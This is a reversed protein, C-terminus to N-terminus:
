PGATTTCRRIIPCRKWPRGQPLRLDDHDAGSLARAAAEVRMKAEVAFMRLANSRSKVVSVVRDFLGMKRPSAKTAPTNETSGRAEDERTWKAVRHHAREEPALYEIVAEREARPKARMAVVAERWTAGLRNAIDLPVRIRALADRDCSRVFLFLAEDRAEGRYEVCEGVEYVRLGAPKESKDLPVADKPPHFATAVEEAVIPTMKMVVETTEDWFRCVMFGSEFALDAGGAGIDVGVPEMRPPPPSGVPGWGESPLTMFHPADPVGDRTPSRRLPVLNNDMECALSGCTDDHAVAWNRSRISPYGVHIQQHTATAVVHVLRMHTANEVRYMSSRGDHLDDLAARGACIPRRLPPRLLLLWGNRRVAEGSGPVATQVSRAGSRHAVRLLKAFPLGRMHERKRPRVSRVVHDVLRRSGADHRHARVRLLLTEDDDPVVGPGVREGGPEDVVGGIAVRHGHSCGDHQHAAPARAALDNPCLKAPDGVVCRFLPLLLGVHQEERGRQAHCREGPNAETQLLDGPVSGRAEVALRVISAPGDSAVLLRVLKLKEEPCWTRMSAWTYASDADRPAGDAALVAKTLDLKTDSAFKVVFAVKSRLRDEFTKAKLDCPGLWYVANYIEECLTGYKNAREEAKQLDIKLREVTEDLKQNDAQLENNKKRCCEQALRDSECMFRHLAARTPEDGSAKIAGRIMMIQTWTSRDGDRGIATDITRIKELAEDREKMAANALSRADELRRNVGALESRANALVREAATACTERPGASLAERARDMDCLAAQGRHGFSALRKAADVVGEGEEMGLIEGIQELTKELTAIRPELSGDREKLKTLAEDREKVLRAAADLMDAGFRVNAITEYPVVQAEKASLCGLVVAMSHWFLKLGAYDKLADAMRKAADITTEMPNAGLTKRISERDASVNDRDSRVRDLEIMVRKAAEVCTEGDAAGLAKRTEELDDLRRVTGLDDTM